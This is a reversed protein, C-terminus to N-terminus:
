GVNALAMVDASSHQSHLAAMIWGDYYSTNYVERVLKERVNDLVNM